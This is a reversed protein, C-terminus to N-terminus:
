LFDGPRADELETIARGLAEPDGPPVLLGTERNVILEAVGDVATAAVPVGVAMAEILARPLGEWLSASAFVDCAPLVAEIDRRLGLQITSDTLRAAHLARETEARMPGDGVLLFRLQGHQRAAAVARVLDLPAKQPALRGVYGVCFEDPAIGLRARAARREEPGALPFRSLDVGARILRYQEIHGIGADLGKRIDRDTVVALAASSRAARRELAAFVRRRWGRFGSFSWGHVHHVAPVGARRAAERGLIGAKATHTHVLSYGGDGILRSLARTARWDRLPSMERCLDPEITVRVGAAHFEDQMSGEPGTEPGAVVHCEFRHSDVGRAALLVMEQAGGVILRTIIHLVRIKGM